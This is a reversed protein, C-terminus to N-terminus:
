GRERPHINVLGMGADVVESEDTVDFVDGNCLILLALLESELQDLGEIEDGGLHAAVLANEITALRVLPEVHLAPELPCSKLHCVVVFVWLALVISTLYPQPKPQRKRGARGCTSHPNLSQLVPAKSPPHLSYLYYRDIFSKVKACHLNTAIEMGNRPVHCLDGPVQAECKRKSRYRVIVMIVHIAEYDM